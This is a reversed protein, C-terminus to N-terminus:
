VGVLEILNSLEALAQLAPSPGPVLGYVPENCPCQALQATLWNARARIDLPPVLLVRGPAPTGDIAHLAHGSQALRGTAVPDADLLVGALRCGLADQASGLERLAAQQGCRIIFRFDESTDAAWAILTSVSVSRVQSWTLMVVDFRLAYYALRWDAPLDEPYLVGQWVGHDWGEAGALFRRTM